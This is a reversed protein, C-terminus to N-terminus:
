QMLVCYCVTKYFDLTKWRKCTKFEKRGVHLKNTKEAVAAPEKMWANNRRPLVLPPENDALGILTCSLNAEKLLLEFSTMERPNELM